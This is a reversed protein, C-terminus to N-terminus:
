GTEEEVVALVKRAWLRDFEKVEDSLEVYPIWYQEWGSLRKKLLEVAGEEDHTEILEIVRELERALNDSWKMWQDHELSSLKEILEKTM